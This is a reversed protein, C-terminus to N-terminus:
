WQFLVSKADDAGQFAYVMAAMAVLVVAKEEDSSALWEISKQYTEYCEQYREGIFTM